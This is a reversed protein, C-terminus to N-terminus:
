SERMTALLLCALAALGALLAFFASFGFLPILLLVLWPMILSPVTNTLNFIGLDRGRTRTRPLVRLTQSSHLALFVGAMLGFLIYGVTGTQLDQSFAMFALGLSAGGAALTLPLRPRRARDSWRGALLALPICVVAILTILRAARNDSVAPDLSRLWLLLFAFLAAEAIQVLLRALWMRVVPESRRPFAPDDNGNPTGRERDITAEVLHPMPRPRGFVLVPLVMAAVVLANLVLRTEADALGPLTLLMGVLAGAAPSIAMLGGLTGKQGDPVCDGAWAMLPGLMMNLAIQWAAIAVLFLGVSEIRFLGTLLLGSLITGAFIWPQRTRTIDSLWGFAINSLSAAIAGVFAAYSLVVIAEDGWVVSARLPLFLTLFPAYAASGGAVALAYLLLYRRAQMPPPVTEAQCDQMTPLDLRSAFGSWAFAARKDSAIHRALWRVHCPLAIPFTALAPFAPPYGGEVHRLTGTDALRGDAASQGAQFGNGFGGAAAHFLRRAFKAIEDIGARRAQAASLGASDCHDHDRALAAIRPRDIREVIGQEAAGAGRRGGAAILREDGELALRVMQEPPEDFFAAGIGDDHDAGSGVTRCPVVETGEGGILGVHREPAGSRLVLLPDPGVIQFARMQGHLAEDRCAMAPDSEDALRFAMLALELLSVFAIPAGHLCMAQRSQGCGGAFAARAIRLPTRRHLSEQATVPGIAQEEGAIGHRQTREVMECLAADVNRSIQAHDTEVPKAAARVRM